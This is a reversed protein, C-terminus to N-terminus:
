EHTYRCWVYWPFKFCTMRWLFTSLNVKGKKVLDCRSVDRLIKSVAWTAVWGVATDILRPLQVLCREFVVQLRRWDRPERSRLHSFTGLWGANSDYTKWPFDPLEVSTIYIPTELIPNGWFPHNIISFVILISSKPTGRNESVDM